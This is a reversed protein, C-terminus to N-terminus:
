GRAARRLVEQTRDLGALAETLQTGISVMQLMPAVLFALYLSSHSCAASPSRPRTALIQRAGIYMVTGGVVGMVMTASLTMLSIATLSSCSTTWAPAERRLRFVRARWGRCPLRQRRPRGVLSETLRGTVEATIKGRERFIPRIKGFAMALGLASM